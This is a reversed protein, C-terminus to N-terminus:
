RRSRRRSRRNLLDVRAEALANLTAEVADGGCRQLTSRQVFQEPTQKLQKVVGHRHNVGARDVHEVALDQICPGDDPESALRLGREGYPAAITESAPDGRSLCRHGQVCRRRILNPRRRQYAQTEGVTHRQAVVAREDADRGDARPTHLCERVLVLTSGHTCRVLPSRRLRSRSTSVWSRARSM